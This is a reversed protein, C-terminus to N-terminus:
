EIYALKIELWSQHLNICRWNMFLVRSIECVILRVFGVTSRSGCRATQTKPKFDAWSTMRHSIIPLVRLFLQTM